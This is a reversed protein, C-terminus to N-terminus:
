GINAKEDIVKILKVLQQQKERDRFIGLVGDQHERTFPPQTLKKIDLHGNDKIYQIIQKVFTIQNPSLNENTIFNSFLENLVDQNVGVISRVFQGLPQHNFEKEYKERTELVEKLLFAELQQFEAPTVEENNYLKFIVLHDRKDKIFAEVREKYPKLSNASAGYNDMPEVASLIVEDQFSTFLPEIQIKNLYNILERIEQRVRELRQLNRNEWFEESQIEKITPLKALVAPINQKTELIRAIKVVREIEPIICSAELYTAHIIKYMLIDFRIINDNDEPSSTLASIERIIKEILAEDLANWHERNKLIKVTEWHKRVEINKENLREISRHMQDCLAKSFVLDEETADQLLAILRVISLKEKFLQQTISFSRQAEIGHPNENFWEFNGMVDFILFYTKHLGPGFLDPWLRTGRGIMQWFKSKSRVKKFFVLNVVRPADVGTDMMDVSVAIQAGLEKKDDCFAKILQKARVTQNDIVQLFDGTYEPYITNFREQIFLAHNHNKAFIITKGLKNGGNVKIGKEMLNNLVEDVTHTNFLYSNLQASDIKDDVEEITPNGFLDEFQIKDKESLEDYAIGEELFKTTTTDTKYPVLYKDEIAQEYEYAFTPDHDSINFLEYTNHDIDTKPTATLGLLLSDFYDFIAKYKQYVSRHAEDIIILDFHGVSYFRKGDEFAKNIQNLMTPYTSFVLRTTNNEKEETLDIASLHPLHEQFASKAQSVLANRDALFLVRKAWNSKTMMDVISCSTRTKGSGTAMVLLAERRKGILQNKDNLCQFSDIMRSIAEKQYHRNTINNNVVYDGLDKRTTRRLIHTKLEDKTYFGSVQRPPYFTDDWIYTNYGNSYFIIPRQGFQVELADAYEKAQHQGNSPSTGTKKAEVVALPKGDDGWLVYDVYGVGTPTSALGVVKYEIDRGEQLDNWGAEALLLDILHTRTEAESRIPKPINGGEVSRETRRQSLAEAQQKYEEQKQQSRLLQIRLEKLEQEQKDSAKEAFERLQDLQKKTREAETEQSLLDSNFASIRPPDEQYSRVIFYCILFLNEVAIKADNQTLRRNSRHTAINGTRRIIDMCAFLSQPIVQEYGLQKILNSISTNYPIELGENTFIEYVAYEMSRRSYIASTIVDTYVNKEAKVTNTYLDTYYDRLFEFNSTM